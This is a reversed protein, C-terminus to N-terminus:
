AAVQARLVIELESAADDTAESLTLGRGWSVVEGRAFVGVVWERCTYSSRLCRDGPEEACWTSLTEEAQM